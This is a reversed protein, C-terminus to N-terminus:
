HYGPGSETVEPRTHLVPSPATSPGHLQGSKIGDVSFAFVLPPALKQSFFILKLLKLKTQKFLILQPLFSQAHRAATITPPPQCLHLKCLSKTPTVDPSLAIAPFSAFASCQGERCRYNWGCVGGDM